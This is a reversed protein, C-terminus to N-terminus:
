KINPFIESFKNDFIKDKYKKSNFFRDESVLPQLINREEDYNKLNIIIKEEFIRNDEKLFANGIEFPKKDIILNFREVKEFFPELYVLQNNAIGIKIIKM